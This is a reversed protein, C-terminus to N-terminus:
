GEGEKQSYCIFEGVDIPFQPVPVMLSTDKILGQECRLADIDRHRDKRRLIKIPSAERRRGM